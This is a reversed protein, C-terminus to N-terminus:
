PGYSGGRVWVAMVEFLLRSLDTQLWRDSVVVDSPLVFQLGSAVVEIQM